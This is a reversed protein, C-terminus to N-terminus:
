SLWLKIASDGSSNMSPWSPDKLERKSDRKVRNIGHDFKQVRTSKLKALKNITSQAARGQLNKLNALHANATNSASLGGQRSSLM